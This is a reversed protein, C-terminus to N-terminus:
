EVDRDIRWERIEETKEDYGMEFRLPSITAYGQGSAIVDVDDPQDEIYPTGGHRYVLNM